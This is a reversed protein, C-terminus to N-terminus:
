DRIAIIKLHQNFGEDFRNVSKVNYTNDGETLTDGEQVDENLGCWINFTKGYGSGLQEAQIENAMQLQGKFSGQEAETSKDNSWSQREVTFTTKFFRNISSM